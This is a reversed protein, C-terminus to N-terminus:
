LLVPKVKQCAPRRFPWVISDMLFISGARAFANRRSQFGAISPMQLNMLPCWLGSWTLLMGFFYAWLLVQRLHGYVVGVKHLEELM